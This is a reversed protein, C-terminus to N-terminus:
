YFVPEDRRTYRELVDYNILLEIDDCWIYKQSAHTNFRVVVELQKMDEELKM